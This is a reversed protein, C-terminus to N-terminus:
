YSYHSFYSVLSRINSLVYDKKGSKYTLYVNDTKGTKSYDKTENGSKYEVKYDYKIQATISLDEDSISYYKIDVDSIKLEKLKNYDSLAYQKLNDYTNKIDDRYDEDFSDKIDDFSKDAVVADYITTLSDKISKKISSSTKDDLKLNSSSFSSYSGTINFEGTLVIGSKLKTTVKHSGKLISPIKYTDSYSSYTDQKYKDKIEVGDISPKSDKPVSISYDKAILDSSDVIWNDFFLYKKNKSKTLKITKYYEKSSGKTIYKIKITKSLNDDNKVGFAKALQSSTDKEITYNELEIKEEDKLAKKLLDKSVFESDDLKIISCIKNADKNAYAKFYKLAIKEPTFLSSLYFYTGVLAAVVVAIVGVLIKTKKSIPKKAVKEKRPEEKTAKEEKVEVPLKHGCEECFATGKKNKAGCEECFM